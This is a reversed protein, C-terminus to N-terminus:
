LVPLQCAFWASSQQRINLQKQQLGVVQVLNWWAHLDM